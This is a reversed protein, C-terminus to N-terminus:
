DFALLELYTSANPFMELLEKKKALEFDAFEFAPAVTCGVLSYRFDKEAESLEGDIIKGGEDDYDKTPFAAFWVLPPVTHQFVHGASLDPGLVTKNIEGKENLEFVTIPDGAYFHWVESSPIRHLHSVSGSPVLFFIATSIARGVKYGANAPLHEKAIFVSPDRFTEAFFGGEPHPILKLREVVDKMRMRTETSAM